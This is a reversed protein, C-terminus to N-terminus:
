AAPPRAPRHGRGGSGTGGTGQWREPAGGTLAGGTPAPAAPRAVTRPSIAQPRGGSPAGRSRHRQRERRAPPAAPRAERSKWVAASTAAPAQGRGDLPRRQRQELGRDWGHGDGGDGRGGTSALSGGTGLRARDIRKGMGGSAGGSPDGGSPVVGGSGDPAGGTGVSGPRAWREIRRGSDGRRGRAGDGTGGSEAPIRGSGRLLEPTYVDCAAVAGPLLLLLALQLQARRDMIAYSPPSRGRAEILDLRPPADGRPLNRRPESRASVSVLTRRSAERRIAGLATAERASGGDRSRPGHRGSETIDGGRRKWTRQERELHSPCSLHTPAHQM